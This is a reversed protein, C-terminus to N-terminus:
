FHLVFGATFEQFQDDDGGGFAVHRYRWDTRLAFRPELRYSAGLGISYAPGDAENADLLSQRPANEFYGLGLALHPIVRKEPWPRYLASLEYLRSSSYTGAVQSVGLEASYRENFRYGGHLRLLPDDDLVGGALGITLHESIFRDLVAARLGPDVDRLTRDLQDRHVWGETGRATRLQYWDTRRQLLEVQAGREVAYFAPYGRGPGSRLELYPEQITVAVPQAAATAAFGLVLILGLLWVAAPRAYRSDM